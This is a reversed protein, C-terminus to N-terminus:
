DLKFKNTKLDKLKTSQILDPFTWPALNTNNGLRLLQLYPLGQFCGQPISTLNNNSLSVTTLSPFFHSLNPLSGMLNTAELDLLQLSSHTLHLPFTWPPLNTNNALTLGTLSTLNHFCGEPISSLNNNSLDLTKMNPFFHSINPLSGMLNTSSLDLVNLQSSHATLDTPFNWPPLKTNNYLSLWDLSTLAHFCGQPISDFNNSSLQVFQLFTLNALSPVPGSLDNNYLDLNKLQTLSDNLGSPVRGRLLKSHLVIQEIRGTQNNCTVGSWQCWHTSRSWNSDNPKLEKLLKLMYEGEKSAEDCLVSTMSFSSFLLMTVYFGVLIKSESKLHAM